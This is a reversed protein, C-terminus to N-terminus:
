QKEAVRSAILNLSPFKIKKIVTKKNYKFCLVVCQHFVPPLLTHTHTRAVDNRNLPTKLSQCKGNKDNVVGFLNIVVDEPEFTYIKHFDCSSAMKLITKTEMMTTTTM